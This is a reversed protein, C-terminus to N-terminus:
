ILEVHVTEFVSIEPVVVTLWGKHLSPSVTRGAQLLSVSKIQESVRIRVKVNQISTFGERVKFNYDKGGINALLHLLMHKESRTYHPILGPRYDIEYTRASELLPLLLSALYSRVPEMRTEEYIAELGSAIYICAAGSNHQIVVAPGLDRDNGRDYSTAVVNGTTPRIRMIQLDQPIMEGSEPKLYLDPYEFPEPQLVSAGFLDALAFDKRVVGYEDAISTLHTAVVSGGDQVYRRVMECQSQSLCAANPLFLLKYRRLMQPTMAWDLFPEADMSLSKLLNFAGRYYDGYAGPVFIDGKYWASTQTNVLIGVQPQPSVQRLLDHNKQQFDFMQRVYRGSNYALPSEPQYFFRSAGWYLCGAGAATAVAGDMLLEQGEVPYSFWTRVFKNKIHNANYENYSGLYTWIVSNMSRGIQLNFLKEEPTNAAEFMYGDAIPIARSRWHETGTLLSTNNFLVPVDRTSRILARLERFFALTVEDRMWQIYRVTEALPASDNDPIQADFRERYAAQCFHCHCFAAAHEMGQYPGDFYLVDFDYELIEQVLRRIVDRLPSNLCGEFYRNFGYHGTIMPSGDAYRRTWDSYRPDNSDIAMFAHNLPIYAIAHLKSKRLLELTRRMPDGKLAPAVPYGSQTPFYAYYSAAPYRVSDCNLETAIAIVKEPDYDYKPYFPPNYGEAILTRNVHIWQYLEEKESQTVGEGAIAPLIPSCSACAALKILERRTMGSM